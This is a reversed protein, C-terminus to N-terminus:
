GIVDHLNVENWRHTDGNLFVQADMGNISLSLAEHSMRDIIWQGSYPESLYLKWDHDSSERIYVQVYDRPELPDRGPYYGVEVVHETM